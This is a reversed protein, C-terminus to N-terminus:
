AVSTVMSPLTVARKRERYSGLECPEGLNRFLSPGALLDYKCASGVM